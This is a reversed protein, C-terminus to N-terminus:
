PVAMVDALDMETLASIHRYASYAALTADGVATTIQRLATHRVDGAAFVGPQSTRMLHDTVIYGDELDLVGKLWETQPARGVAIFVGEVELDSVQHTGVHKLRLKELQTEGVIEAVVTDWVIELNRRAFAREQLYAEARLEHRRHVLYV